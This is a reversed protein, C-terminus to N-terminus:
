HGSHYPHGSLITSARYIQELVVLRALQHPFTLPSLSWIFEARGTLAPDLGDAGGIVFALDRGASLWRDIRSALAESDIAKGTRELVVVTVDTGLVTELRAAEDALRRGRDRGSPRAAPVAELAVRWARPLRSLYLDQAEALPGAAPPGVAVLRIRM